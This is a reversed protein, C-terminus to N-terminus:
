AAKKFTTATTNAVKAVNGVVGGKKAAEEARQSLAVFIVAATWVPLLNLIPVVEAVLGGGFGLVRWPNYFFDVGKIKFWLYFTLWVIISIAWNMFLGVFLLGLFFQVLDIAGAVVLMFALTTNNIKREGNDM